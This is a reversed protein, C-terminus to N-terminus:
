GEKRYKKNEDDTVEKRSSGSNNKREVATLKQERGCIAAALSVRRRVAALTVRRRVAAHIL